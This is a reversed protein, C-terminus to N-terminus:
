RWCWAVVCGPMFPCKSAQRCAPGRRGRAARVEVMEMFQYSAAPSILYIVVLTWYYFVAAHEALFRDGWRLDGGLAEMIQLHHLENWEEAFHVKRLEAGARWWGLSEYL